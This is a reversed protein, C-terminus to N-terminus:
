ATLRNEQSQRLLAPGGFEDINFVAIIAVVGILTTVVIHRVQAGAVLLMGMGIVVFVLMTGIDPQVFILGMPVAVLILANVLADVKLYGEKNAVFAALSLIVAVKAFRPLRM